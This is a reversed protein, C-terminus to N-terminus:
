LELDQQGLEPPKQPLNEVRMSYDHEGGYLACRDVLALTGGGSTM